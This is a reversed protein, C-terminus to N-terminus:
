GLNTHNDENNALIFFFRDINFASSHVCSKEIMVRHFSDIAMSVLTRTRDPVFCLAAKDIGWNAEALIQNHDAWHKHLYNRKFNNVCLCVFMYM